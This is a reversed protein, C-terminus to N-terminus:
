DHQGGQEPNTILADLLERRKVSIGAASYSTTAYFYDEVVVIILKSIANIVRNAEDKNM